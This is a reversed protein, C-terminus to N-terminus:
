LRFQNYDCMLAAQAYGSQEHYFYYYKPEYVSTYLSICLVRCTLVLRSIQIYLALPLDCSWLFVIPLLQYLGYSAGLSFHEVLQCLSCGSHCSASYMQIATSVLLHKYHKMACRSPIFNSNPQTLEGSLPHSANDLIFILKKM